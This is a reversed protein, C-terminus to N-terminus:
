NEEKKLKEEIESIRKNLVAINKQIRELDRLHDYVMAKLEELSKDDIKM